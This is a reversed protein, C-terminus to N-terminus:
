RLVRVSPTGPIVDGSIYDVPHTGFPGTTAIPAAKLAVNLDSVGQGMIINGDIIINKAVFTLSSQSSLVVNDQADISIEVKKIGSKTTKVLQFTGDENLSVTLGGFTKFVVAPGQVDLGDVGAKLTTGGDGSAMNVSGDQDYKTYGLGADSQTVHEGPNLGFQGKRIHRANTGYFKVIGFDFEGQRWYLAKQGPMPMTQDSGVPIWPITILNGDNDDVIHIQPINVGQPDVYANDVAIVKGKLLELMM